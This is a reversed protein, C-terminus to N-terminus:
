PGRVTQHHNSAYSYESKQNKLNQELHSTQLTTAVANIEGFDRLNPQRDLILWAAEDLCGSNCFEEASAFTEM